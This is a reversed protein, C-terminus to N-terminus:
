GSCDKLGTRRIAMQPAGKTKIQSPRKRAKARYGGGEREMREWARGCEAGEQKGEKAIREQHQCNKLTQLEWAKVKAQKSGM